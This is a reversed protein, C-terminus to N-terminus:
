WWHKSQWASWAQAWGGYRSKAYNDAGRIHAPTNSLGGWKGCNLEQFLNCAGSSANQAASNCTSEVRAINIAYPLDSQSIGNALLLPVINECGSVSEASATQTQTVTNVVSQSAQALKSKAELKAQLDAQLQQKEQELQQRQEELRKLQEDSANKDSKLKDLETNLTKYKLDLSKLKTERSKLEVQQLHLKNEQSTYSYIALSAFLVIVVATIIKTRMVRGDVGM